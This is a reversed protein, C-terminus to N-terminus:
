YPPMSQLCYKAVAVLERCRQATEFLRHNSLTRLSRFVKGKEVVSQSIGAPVTFSEACKIPSLSKSIAMEQIISYETRHSCRM